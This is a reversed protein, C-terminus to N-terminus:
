IKYCRNHQKKCMLLSVVCLITIDGGYFEEKLISYMRMNVFTGNKYNSKRKVGRSSSGVSNMYISQENM